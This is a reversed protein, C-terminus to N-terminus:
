QSSPLRAAVFGPSTREVSSGTSAPSTTSHSSRHRMVTSESPSSSAAESPMRAPRTRATTIAAAVSTVAATTDIEPMM